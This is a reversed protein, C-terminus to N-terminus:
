LVATCMLTTFKHIYTPAFIFIFKYLHMELEGIAPGLIRAADDGFNNHSLILEQLHRTEQLTFSSLRLIIIFVLM